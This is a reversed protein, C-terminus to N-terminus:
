SRTLPKAYFKEYDGMLRWMQILACALLAAYGPGDGFLSRTGWFLVLIGVNFLAGPAILRVSSHGMLRAVLLWLLDWLLALGVVVDFLSGKVGVITSAGVALLLAGIGLIFDVSFNRCAFRVASDSQLYVQDFYVGAFTFQRSMLLWVILSRLAEMLVGPNAWGASSAHHLVISLPERMVMATVGYIWFASKHLDPVRAAPPQASM